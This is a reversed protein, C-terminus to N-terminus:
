LLSKILTLNRTLTAGSAGFKGKVFPTDLLLIHVNKLIGSHHFTYVLTKFVRAKPIALDFEGAAGIQWCSEAQHKPCGVFDSLSALASFGTYVACLIKCCHRFDTISRLKPRQFNQAGSLEAVHDAFFMCHAWAIKNQTAKCQAFFPCKTRKYYNRALLFFLSM